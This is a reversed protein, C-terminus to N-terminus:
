KSHEEPLKSSAEILQKLLVKKDAPDYDENPILLRHFWRHVVQKSFQKNTITEYFAIYNGAEPTQKIIRQFHHKISRM